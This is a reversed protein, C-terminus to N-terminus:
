TQLLTEAMLKIPHELATRIRNPPLADIAQMKSSTNTATYGRLRRAYLFFFVDWSQRFILLFEILVKSKEIEM